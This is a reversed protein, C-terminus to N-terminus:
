WLDVIVVHTRWASPTVPTMMRDMGKGETLNQGATKSHVNSYAIFVLAKWAKGNPLGSWTVFDFDTDSRIHDRM